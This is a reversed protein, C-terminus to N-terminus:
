LLSLFEAKAQMSNLRGTEEERKVLEVVKDNFPTPVGVERGKRCVHGNIYDIETKRGKELDQLMSAKLGVHPGWVREFIPIKAPIDDSSELKLEEFDQGQMPELRVGCANAVRVTEDAIHAICRITVEDHLVDGFTSAMAASMGSFTANMLVKAWRVGMLNSMVSTHGVLGMVEQVKRIRPTDLGSMEGIDFAYNDIAYRSSTLKSVGPELWSAGWGVAAGATRSEGVVAAVSEEPIGNQLTVVLSDAGMHPLLQPLIEANATQKTSLLILDYVGDMEGPTCARVPVNLDMAGTVTAGKENLADVNAQYTDVLDAAGGRHNILAGSIIGLSGAGVIVTRM